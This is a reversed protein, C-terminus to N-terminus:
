AEIRITGSSPGITELAETKYGEHKARPNTPSNAVAKKTEVLDVASKEEAPTSCEDKEVLVGSSESEHGNGASGENDTSNTEDEPDMIKTAAPFNSKLREEENQLEKAQKVLHETDAVVLAAPVEITEVHGKLIRKGVEMLPISHGEPLSDLSQWGAVRESTIKNIVDAREFSFNDTNTLAHLFSHDLGELAENPNIQYIHGFVLGVEKDSLGFRADLQTYAFRPIPLSRLTLNRNHNVNKSRKRTHTFSSGKELRLTYRLIRRLVDFSKESLNSVLVKLKTNM